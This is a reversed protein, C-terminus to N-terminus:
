RNPSPRTWPRSMSPSAAPWPSACGKDSGPMSRAPSTTPSGRSPPGPALAPRRGTRLDGGPDEPGAASVEATSNGALATLVAPENQQLIAAVVPPGLRPRRAVEIQHEITADVLLRILDADQLVPSEAIIPRAIEIDDLALVNILAAPAWSAMALKEALRQRIDREAEVVLSM